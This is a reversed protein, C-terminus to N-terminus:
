DMGPRGSIRELGRMIAQQLDPGIVVGNDTMFRLVYAFAEEDRQEALSALVDGVHDLADRWLGECATLHLVGEGQEAVAGPDEPGSALRLGAARALRRLEEQAEAVLVIIQMALDFRDRLAVAAAASPVLADLKRIAASGALEALIDGRLGDQEPEPAAGNAAGSGRELGEAAQRFFSGIEARDFGAARLIDGASRIVQAALAMRDVPSEKSSAIM